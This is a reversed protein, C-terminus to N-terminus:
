AANSHRKQEALWHKTVELLSVGSKISAVLLKAFTAIGTIQDPTHQLVLNRATQEEPNNAVAALLQYSPYFRCQHCTGNDDLLWQSYIGQKNPFFSESSNQQIIERPYKLIEVFSDVATPQIRGILRTSLNQFIKASAPSQYITNPDQAAIIVRIGMKAGNACLRGILHAIESYEFLVSCEDVFLISAQTTLAKRLVAGYATLALVAADEENSLNTLAYVTMAADAKITSPKSIAKGVRSTLWYRLQLNIQALADNINSGPNDLELYESSCFQLFDKLTPTNQWQPSEIGGAIAREYRRSIESDALFADLAQGLLSRVTRSLRGDEENRGLVMVMLASELSAKIEDLRQERVEEPLHRLDPLEFLNVSEKGIDFYSGRLFNTFDSFTSTGDAGPFDMVQVPINQALAHVLIYAILCSKGSRTTGFVAIHRHRFVIDLHIPTGASAILEIGRSDLSKPIVLSMFGPVESSLYLQRREFPTALLTDFSAMLTQKWINWAYNEERVVVAPRHFHNKISRCANDLLERDPRHVLIAVGAYIPVEGEIMKIQAQISEESDLEAKVDASNREAALSANLNSQKTLQQMLTRTLAVDASSLQCFIETDHVRDKALLEWLYHLQAAGSSWGGPKEHFTLAGIYKEKVRVWRPNAIPVSDCVLASPCSLDSNRKESLGSEDYVLLQPIPLPDSRNCRYWLTEWMEEATLPRIDLGFKDSLLLEWQRFNDHARHFITELKQKREEQRAGTFNSWSQLGLAILNEILDGRSVTSDGITVSVYIRLGKPKRLGQNTLEQTRAQEGMTLCQLETNPSLIRRAKLQQQRKEDSCFSSLHFTLLEGSPLEKLAAELRELAAQTQDPKQLVHIGKCDFGFVFRVPNFYQNKLLLYTGINRDKLRIAAMCNLNLSDQFAKFAVTKSGIKKDTIHKLKM